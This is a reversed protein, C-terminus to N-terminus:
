AASAAARIQKDALVLAQDRQLNPNKAQLDDALKLIDVPEHKVPLPEFSRSTTIDRLLHRQGPQLKPYLARFAEPAAKRVEVMSDLDRDSLKKVDKYTEFAAEVEARVEMDEFRSLKETLDRVKGDRDALATRQEKQATALQKQLTEITEEHNVIKEEADRLKTVTAAHKAEAPSINSNEAMATEPETDTDAMHASPSHDAVSADILEFAADCLDEFSAAPPLAGVCTSLATIYPGTVGGRPDTSEAIRDRLRALETVCELPGALPSLSLAARIRPMYEDPAALPQALTDRAALSALGDLFPSNTLALSTMRAGVAEGTVRDKAGFRIAPSVSYYKGAKIYERALDGWEVLGWLGAKGRNDLDRIWGQAPAGIAPISGATPDAESAHEFDVPIVRNQTAKFNSVIESFIHPTLEFPGSPHGRWTGVKAVQIWVPASPAALPVACLRAREDDLLCVGDRDAMHRVDIRGHVPHDITMRLGKGRKRRRAAAPAAPMSAPAHVDDPGLDMSTDDGDDDASTAPSYAAALAAKTTAAM